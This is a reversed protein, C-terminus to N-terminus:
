HKYILAKKISGILANSAGEKCPYIENLPKIILIAADKNWYEPHANTYKKVIAVLQPYSVGADPCIGIGNYADAIGLIYSDLADRPTAIKAISKEPCGARFILL